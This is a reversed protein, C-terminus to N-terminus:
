IYIHALSISGAPNLITNQFSCACYMDSEKSVDFRLKNKLISEMSRRLSIDLEVIQILVQLYM